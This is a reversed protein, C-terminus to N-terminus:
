YSPWLILYEFSQHNISSSSSECPNMLLTIFQISYSENFHLLIKLTNLKYRKYEISYIIKIRYLMIEHIKFDMILLMFVIFVIFVLKLKFKFLIRQFQWRWCIELVTWQVFLWVAVFKGICHRFNYFFQERNQKNIGIFSLLYNYSRWVNM